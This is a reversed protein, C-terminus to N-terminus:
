LFGLISTDYIVYYNSLAKIIPLLTIKRIALYNIWQMNLKCFFALFIYCKRIYLLPQYSSLNNIGHVNYADLHQISLRRKKTQLIKRWSCRWIHSTRSKIKRWTHLIDHRGIWILESTNRCWSVDSLKRNWIANRRATQLEHMGNRGNHKKKLLGERLQKFQLAWCNNLSKIYVFSSNM